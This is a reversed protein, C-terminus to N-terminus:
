LKRSPLLFVPLAKRHLCKPVSFAFYYHLPWEPFKAITIGLIPISKGNENM